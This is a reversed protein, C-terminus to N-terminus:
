GHRYSGNAMGTRGMPWAQIICHGHKLSGCPSCCLGEGPEPVKVTLPGLLPVDDDDRNGSFNVMTEARWKPLQKYWLDLVTGVTMLLM